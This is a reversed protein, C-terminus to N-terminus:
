DPAIWVVFSLSYDGYQGTIEWCGATPAVVGVLMFSQLTEHTGHTAKSAILPPSEGDLRKGSVTLSPEPETTSDYGQRWWFVKQTYGSDDHPLDSWTGRTGLMTWLDPSGYWFSDQEPAGYPSPPDFVPDAPQTVPCTVQLSNSSAGPSAPAKAESEKGPDAAQVQQAASIPSSGSSCAALLWALGILLLKLSLRKM